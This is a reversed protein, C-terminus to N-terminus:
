KSGEVTLHYLCAVVILATNEADITQSVRGEFTVREAFFAWCEWNAGLRSLYRIGAFVPNGLDDTQDHIYRSCAQTFARNSGALTSMDVNPLKLRTALPTLRTRLIQQTSAAALDVCPLNQPIRIYAHAIQRRMRWDRSVRGATGLAIDPDDSEDDAIAKLQALLTLSPRFGALTEGFAGQPTSACYVVRFPPNAGSRAGDFRNGFTGGELALEWSPPDFTGSSRRAIRYVGQAPPAVTAFAEPM